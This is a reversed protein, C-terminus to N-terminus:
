LLAEIYEPKHNPLIARVEEVRSDVVRSGSATLVKPARPRSCPQVGALVYPAVMIAIMVAERAGSGLLLRSAGPDEHRAAGSGAASPSRSGGGEDDPDDGLEYLVVSLWELRADDVAGGHRLTYPLIESLNYTHQYDALLRRNLFAM